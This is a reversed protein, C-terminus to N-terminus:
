DLPQEGPDNVEGSRARVVREEERSIEELQVELFSRYSRLFRDRQMRLREMVERHREVEQKATLSQRDREVLAEKMMLEAQRESQARIEERLQQASVLAENMASERGRFIVLQESLQETKARLSLNERVLIEFRDAVLELFGDVDEAEYGRLAKRFDGKKKRVDLPTLDMM